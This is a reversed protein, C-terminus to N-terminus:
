KASSFMKFLGTSRQKEKMKSIDTQLMRENPSTAIIEAQISIESQSHKFQHANKNASSVQLVAPLQDRDPGPLDCEALSSVPSANAQSGNAITGSSNSERLANTLMAVQNKYLALEDKLLDIETDKNRLSKRLDYVSEELEECYARSEEVSDHPGPPDTFCFFEQVPVCNCLDSHCVVSDIFAQLGHMRDDLFEHDFNSKFWRKPPLPLRFMPFLRRLKQQLQVFDTYRRFVFWNDINGKHVHLKFVTFKARQEMVEFGALPVRIDLPDVFSVRKTRRSPREFLLGTSESSITSGTGRRRVPSFGVAGSDSDLQINRSRSRSPLEPNPTSTKPSQDTWAHNVSDVFNAGSQENNRVIEVMPNIASLAPLSNNDESSSTLSRTTQYESLSVKQERPSLPQSNENGRRQGLLPDRIDPAPEISDQSEEIM